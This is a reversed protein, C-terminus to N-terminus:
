DLYIHFFAQMSSPINYIIKCSKYNKLIKYNKLVNEIENMYLELSRTKMGSIKKKINDYDREVNEFKEIFNEITMFKNFTPIYYDLFDNTMAYNLHKIGYGVNVSPINLGNAIIVGHLRGGIAIYSNKIINILFNFERNGRNVEIYEKEEENLIKICENYCKLDASDGFSSIYVCYGKKILYKSLQGYFTKIKMNYDSYSLKRNKFADYGGVRVTNLFIVKRNKNFINPLTIKFKFLYDSFLGIDNIYPINTYIGNHRAVQQEFVGRFGGYLKNFNQFDILTSMNRKDMFLHKRKFSKQNIISQINKGHIRSYKYDTVGTGNIFLYHTNLCEFRTYSIEGPYMLSGGGIIKIHNPLVNDTDLSPNSKINLVNINFREKLVKKYMLILIHFLIDDGFNGSNVCGKYHNRIIEVM